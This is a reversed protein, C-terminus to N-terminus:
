SAVIWLSCYQPYPLRFAVDDGTRRDVRVAKWDSSSRSPNAYGNRAAETEGCSGRKSEYAQFRSRGDSGIVAPSATAV